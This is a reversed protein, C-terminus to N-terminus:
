LVLSLSCWTSYFWNFKIQNLQVKAATQTYTHTCVEFDTVFPSTKLLSFLDSLTLSHPYFSFSLHITQTLSCHLSRLGIVLKRVWSLDTGPPFQYLFVVADCFSHLSIPQFFNKVKQLLHHQLLLLLLNCNCLNIIAASSHSHELTFFNLPCNSLELYCCLNHETKEPCLLGSKSHFLLLHLLSLTLSFIAIM